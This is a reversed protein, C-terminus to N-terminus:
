TLKSIAGLVVIALQMAKRIQAAVCWSAPQTSIHQHSDSQFWFVAMSCSCLWVCMNCPLLSSAGLYVSVCLDISTSAAGGRVDAFNLACITSLVALIHIATCCCWLMACEPTASRQSNRFMQREGACSVKFIKLTNFGEPSYKVFNIGSVWLQNVNIAGLALAAPALLPSSPYIPNPIFTSAIFFLNTGALMALSINARRFIAEDLFGDRAADQM